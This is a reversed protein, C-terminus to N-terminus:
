IKHLIAVADTPTLGTPRAHAGRGRRPPDRRRFGPPRACRRSGSRGGRRHPLGRPGRPRDHRRARAMAGPRPRLGSDRADGAMAPWRDFAALLADLMTEREVRRSTELRVSTATTALDAPFEAQNLNLGIGVVVIPEATLRSELLIGAIKRGRVVVDNPWKLRA